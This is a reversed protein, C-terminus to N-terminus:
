ERAPKPQSVPSVTDPEAFRKKKEVPMTPTAFSDPIEPTTDPCAGAAPRRCWPTEDKIAPRKGDTGATADLKASAPARRMALRLGGIYAGVVYKRAHGLDQAIVHRAVLDNEPDVQADSRLPGPHGTIGAYRRAAYEHRLGHLNLGKRRTLGFRRTLSYIRNRYGILTLEPPIMTSARTSALTKLRSLLALQEADTVPVNRTRGGKAGREIAIHTGHDCLHPQFLLSEKLRLGFRFQLELIAGIRPDDAQVRALIDAVDAGQGSWTKDCQAVSSRRVTKPDRVYRASETIMGTKGLWENAYTRLVSLRTQIDRIGAAEWHQALARVHRQRLRSPSEPRFGLKWLTRFAAHLIEARKAQWAFSAVAGRRNRHNHTRIISKLERWFNPHPM